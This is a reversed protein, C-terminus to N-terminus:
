NLSPAALNMHVNQSVGGVRDLHSSKGRSPIVVEDVSQLPRGVLGERLESLAVQRDKTVSGNGQEGNSVLAIRHLTLTHGGDIPCEHCAVGLVHAGQKLLGGSHASV